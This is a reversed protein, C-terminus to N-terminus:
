KVLLKYFKQLALKDAEVLSHTREFKAQLLLVAKHQPYKSLIAALQTPSTDDDEVVTTQKVELPTKDRNPLKVIIAEITALWGPLITEIKSAKAHLGALQKKTLFGRDEYQHMLSMIFLSEKDAEYCADLVKNIIDVGSKKPIM